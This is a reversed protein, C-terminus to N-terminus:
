RFGDDLFHKQGLGDGSFDIEAIMPVEPPVALFSESPLAPVVALFNFLCIVNSLMIPEYRVLRAVFNGVCTNRTPNTARGSCPAVTRCYPM